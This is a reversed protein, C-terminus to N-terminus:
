LKIIFNSYLNIMRSEAGGAEPVGVNAGAGGVNPQVSNSASNNPAPWTTLLDTPNFPPFEALYASNFVPANRIHFDFPHYHSRVQDLQLSGVSDGTNGGPLSAVRSSADPDNGYGNDVGRLTVGNGLPLNFTTTGNGAGFSTGIVAFLSAYVPDTRGVERGDCINWGKPDVTGGYGVMTGAPLLQELCFNIAGAIANMVSFGIPATSAVAPLQIPFNSVPVEM